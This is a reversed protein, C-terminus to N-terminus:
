NELESAKFEDLDEYHVRWVNARVVSYSEYAPRKVVYKRHVEHSLLMPKDLSIAANKQWVFLLMCICM